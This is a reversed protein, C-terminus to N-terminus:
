AQIVLELMHRLELSRLPVYWGHAFAGMIQIYYKVYKSINFFGFLFNVRVDECTTHACPRKVFFRSTMQGVYFLCIKISFLLCQIM